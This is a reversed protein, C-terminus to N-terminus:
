MWPNEIGTLLNLLAVPHRPNRCARGSLTYIAPGFSVYTAHPCRDFGVNLLLTLAIATAAARRLGRSPRPRSLAENLTLCTVAVGVAVGLVGLGISIQWLVLGL